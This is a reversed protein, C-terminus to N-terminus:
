RLVVSPHLFGAEKGPVGLAVLSGDPGLLRVVIEGAPIQQSWDVSRADVDRGHRVATVEAEGLHMSPRDPLLGDLPVMRALVAERAGTALEGSSVAQDLTFSGSATRRLGELAAGMGLATGLDHAFSRVYFGASVTMTFRATAGDFATLTLRSIEVPVPALEVVAEQRALAYARRGDVKKASFPPPTQLGPGRFGSIAEELAEPTPRADSERRVRGTVDYTDTEIGFRVVAEYQKEDSTLYRALRTAAGVALVLVGTAMPDLTGCHGIRREGLARRALSVVDHSTPGSAKDIVLVGAPGSWDAERAVAM